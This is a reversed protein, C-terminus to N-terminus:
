VSKGKGNFLVGTTVLIGIILGLYIITWTRISYNSGAGRSGPASNVAGAANASGGVGGGSPAGPNLGGYASTGVDVFAM